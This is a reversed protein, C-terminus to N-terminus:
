GDPMVEKDGGKELQAHWGMREVESISAFGVIETGDLVMRSCVPCCWIFIPAEGPKAFPGRVDVPGYYDCICRLIPISCTEDPEPRM